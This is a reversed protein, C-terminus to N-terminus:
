VPQDGVREDHERASRVPSPGSSTRAASSARLARRDLAYDSEVPLLMGGSGVGELWRSESIGATRLASVRFTGELKFPQCGHAGLCRRGVAGRWVAAAGAV